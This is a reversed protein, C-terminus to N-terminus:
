IYSTLAHFIQCVQAGSLPVWAIDGKFLKQNIGGFFLESGSPAIKFSFARDVVAGESFLTELVSNANLGSSEGFGLGMVGDL